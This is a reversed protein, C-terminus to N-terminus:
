INDKPLGGGVGMYLSFIYNFVYIGFIYHLVFCVFLDASFFMVWLIQEVKGVCVCIHLQLKLMALALEPAIESPEWLHKNPASTAHTPIVTVAGCLQTLLMM